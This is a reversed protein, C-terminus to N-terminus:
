GEEQPLTITDAADTEGGAGPLDYAIGATLFDDFLKDDLESDPVPDLPLSIRLGIAFLALGEKDIEKSWMNEVDHVAVTGAVTEGLYLEGDARQLVERPLANNLKPAIIETARYAGLLPGRGRRRTKETGGAWGSLIYVSWMTDFTVENARPDQRGGHFAVRICPVQTIVRELYGDSWEGPGCEISRFHRDVLCRLEYILWDEVKVISM